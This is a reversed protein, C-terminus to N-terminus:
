EGSQHDPLQGSLTTVNKRLSTAAEALGDRDAAIWGARLKDYTWTLAMCRNWQSEFGEKPVKVDASVKKEIEGLTVACGVLDADIAEM